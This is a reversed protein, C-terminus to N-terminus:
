RGFVSPSSSMEILAAPELTEGSITVLAIKGMAVQELFRIAADYRLRVAHDKDLQHDDYLGYRAIDCCHRVLVAPVSSLPLYASIYGDITASADSIAQTLVTDDMLGTNDRDTRQILETEWGRDIMDQKTCYM